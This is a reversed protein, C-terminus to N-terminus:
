SVLLRSATFYRSVIVHFLLTCYWHLTFVRRAQALAASQKVMTSIGGPTAPGIKGCLVGDEFGVKVGGM